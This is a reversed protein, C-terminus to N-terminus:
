EALCQPLQLLQLLTLISGQHPMLIGHLLKFSVEPDLRIFSSPINLCRRCLYSKDPKLIKAIIFIYISVYVLQGNYNPTASAAPQVNAATVYTSQPTAASVQIVNTLQGPPTPVSHPQQPAVSVAPPVTAVPSMVPQYSTSPSAVPMGPPRYSNGGKGMSSPVANAVFNQQQPSAIGSAGGASITPSTSASNSSATAQNVPPTSGTIRPMPKTKIRAM